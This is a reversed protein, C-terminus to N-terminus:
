LGVGNIADVKAQDVSSLGGVRCGAGALVAEAAAEADAEMTVVAYTPVATEAISTHGTSSGGRVYNGSAYMSGGTETHLARNDGKQQLNIYNRVANGIANLNFSIGYLGVSPSWILNCRVDAVTEGPLGPHGDSNWQSQPQRTLGGYFLNHHVSIRKSGTGILSLYNHSALGGPGIFCWQVTVDECLRTIDVQGDLAGQLSCHDILVRTTNKFTLADGTIGRQDLFRLQRLVLNERGDAVVPYGKVTVGGGPADTGDITM